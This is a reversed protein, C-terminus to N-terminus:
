RNPCYIPCYSKWFLPSDDPWYIMHEGMPKKCYECMNKEILKLTKFVPQTPKGDPLNKARVRM